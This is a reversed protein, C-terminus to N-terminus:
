PEYKPRYKPPLKKGRGAAIQREMCNLMWKALERRAMADFRKLLEATAPDIHTTKKSM